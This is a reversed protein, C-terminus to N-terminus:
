LTTQSPFTNAYPRSHHPAPHPRKEKRSAQSRLPLRALTTPLAPLHWRRGSRSPTEDAHLSEPMCASALTEVKRWVVGEGVLYSMIRKLCWPACAGGGQM